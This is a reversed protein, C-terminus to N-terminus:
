KVSTWQVPPDEDAKPPGAHWAKSGRALERGTSYLRAMRKRDFMPGLAAADPLRDEVEAPISTYRFGFAPRNGAALEAVERLNSFQLSQTYIGLSRAGIDILNDGVAQPDIELRGNVITWVMPASGAEPECASAYARSMGLMARRLFVAERLGADVHLDGDIRVPPFVVPIAAAALLIRRFRTLGANGQEAALKSLPWIVLEGADLDVTAVYLRRGARHADAVRAITEATVHRAILRELPGTDFVSDPAGWTFPGDHIDGDSSRTYV